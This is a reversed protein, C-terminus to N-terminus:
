AARRRQRCGYGLLGLTGLGLLTLTSPEPIVQAQAGVEFSGFASFSQGPLLPIPPVPPFPIPGTLTGETTKEVRFPPLADLVEEFFALGTELPPNSGMIKLTFSGTPDGTFILAVPASSINTFGITTATKASSQAATPGAFTATADAHLASFTPLDFFGGPAIDFTRSATISEMITGGSIERHMMLLPGFDADFSASGSGLPQVSLTLLGSLTVTVRATATPSTNVIRIDPGGAADAIATIPEAGTKAPNALWLGLSLVLLWSIQHRIAWSKM